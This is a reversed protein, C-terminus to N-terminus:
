RTKALTDVFDDAWREFLADFWFRNSVKNARRFDETRGAVADESATLVREGRADRGEVNLTAYGAERVFSHVIGITAGGPANVYLDTLAPKLSLVGPGPATAIRYGRARFAEALAREFSQGMERALEEAEGPTLRQSQLRLSHARDTFGRQFEVSAPAILVQEFGSGRAGPAFQIDVAALAPSSAALFAAAAIRVNM